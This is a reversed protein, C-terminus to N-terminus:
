AFDRTFPKMFAFFLDRLRWLLRQFVNGQPKAPTLTNTTIDRVGWKYYQEATGVDDVTWVMTKLGAERLLAVSEKSWNCVFNIGDLRNDLCFRIRDRM